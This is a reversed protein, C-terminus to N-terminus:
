IQTKNGVKEFQQYDEMGSKITSDSEFSSNSKYGANASYGM